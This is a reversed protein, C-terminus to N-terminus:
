TVHLCKVYKGPLIQFLIIGNKNIDFMDMDIGVGALFIHNMSRALLTLVGEALIGTIQEIREHPTYETKMIVASGRGCQRLGM